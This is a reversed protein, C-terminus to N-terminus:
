SGCANQIVATTQAFAADFTPACISEVIGHPFRETFSALVNAQAAHGSRRCTDEPTHAITLVVVAEDNGGKAALVDEYADSPDGDEDTIIVIVLLADPRLFGENCAATSLPPDVLSAIAGLPRESTSGTTGVRVTCELADTLDDAETMFRQGDAFPGCARESSNHGGTQAVMAGLSECGVTNDDYGDTTVVGIHVSDVTDLVAGVGDVFDVVSRVLKSQNDGMSASNDVVFLYDVKSCGDVIPDYVEDSRVDSQFADIPTRGCGLALLLSALLPLAHRRKM